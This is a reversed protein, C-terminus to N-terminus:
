RQDEVVLQMARAIPIHVVGGSRDVWAYRSLRQEAERRTTATTEDNEILTQYLGNIARPPPAPSAGRTPATGMAAAGVSGLTLWTGGVGFAVLAAVVVMTAILAGRSFTVPDQQM